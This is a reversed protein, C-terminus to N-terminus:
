AAMSYNEKIKPFATDFLEEIKNLYESPSKNKLIAMSKAKEEGIVNELVNYTIAKIATYPNRVPNLFEKAELDAQGYMIFDTVIVDLHKNLNKIQPIKSMDVNMFTDENAKNELDSSKYKNSKNSFMYNWLDKIPEFMYYPISKKQYDTNRPLDYFGNVFDNINGSNENNKSSM